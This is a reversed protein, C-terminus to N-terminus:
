PEMLWEAMTFLAAPLAGTINRVTYAERGYYEYPGLIRVEEILRIKVIDNRCMKTAERM